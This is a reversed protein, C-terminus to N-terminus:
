LPSHSEVLSIQNEWNSGEADLALLWLIEGKLPGLLYAVTFRWGGRLVLSVSGTGLSPEERSASPRRVM